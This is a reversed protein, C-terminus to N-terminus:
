NEPLKKEEIGLQICILFSLSLLSMFLLPLFHVQTTTIKERPTQFNTQAISIYKIM